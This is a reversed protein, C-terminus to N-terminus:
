EFFEINRKLCTTPNVEEITDCTKGVSTKADSFVLQRQNQLPEPCSEATCTVLQDLLHPVKM